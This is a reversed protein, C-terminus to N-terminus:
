DRTAMLTANDTPSTLTITPAVTDLTFTFMVTSLNNQNDTAQFTLTHAGDATGDLALTSPLSFTGTPSVTVPAFAGNDLKAQLVAVGSLNDLVQGTLTINTKTVTGSQQTLLIKPGQTDTTVTFRNLVFDALAKGSALGDQNSFEFHIGGYIRSKGAEQAAQEFSTFSRSVGPLGLSTTTFALTPGFITSLIEAAAGSFTSHGSTYEPFPPTILLPTWTADKTTLANGDLDAQQIATIPRWFEYQYKTNWATIGADALAVNLQAFLRANASLSNGQQQAIQQAIANWHGPPTFTGSGDAWFRAIETQDATRTSGTASGLAKVENFAAAYAASDLAPPGAPTFQNPSTLAFPTLDAWQPLLAVDFMPGTLQWDGPQNGPVYDVFDNWGDTARIAIIADAINQGLAIGDTKGVGNPVLALSNALQTEFFVQQGPYLYSLVRHAASAAAADVSTGAQAPLSVYYGPTGEIANITDYMALSVMAMGRSAVPPPTADLRIAEILTQNWTLVVDAQQTAALRTIIRSFESQNGAVDSARFTFPNAGIALALNPLQFTGTGTSLTSIGPGVLQVSTTPDTQGKLTVVGVSTEQDGVTGTDSTLALDFTPSLPAATDLTFIRDLTTVNGRADTARLHLTHAGDTLPSGFIQELQVTSLGFTGDPLLDSLIDTFNALPTADFGATFTAIQNIDAITGTITPNFTIADTASVGTDLQLGATVLPAILERQPNMNDLFTAIVAPDTRQGGPDIAGDTLANGSFGFLNRIIMIGDSLADANQNLDVDLAGGIANLYNQIATPDTRLGAPDVAGDVLANGTFGFLHRIIVIGDSLADAQGNLDVDLNPLSGAPVTVAATTLEQPTIIETPTGSLLLRPELAELQFNQTSPAARRSPEPRAHQTRRRFGAQRWRRVSERFTEKMYFLTALSM